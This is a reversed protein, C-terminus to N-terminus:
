PRVEDIRLGPDSAVAVIAARVADLLSRASMEPLLLSNYTLNCRIGGSARTVMAMDLQCGWPSAGTPFEASSDAVLQPTLLADRLRGPDDPPLTAIQAPVYNFLVDSFPTRARVPDETVAQVQIPVDMGFADVVGANVDAIVDRFRRSPSVDARVLRLDVLYGLLSRLEPRDRNADTMAVTIDDQGFCRSLAVMLTTLLGAALTAQESRCLAALRGVLAPPLDAVVRAPVCAAERERGVDPLDLHPEFGTLRPSQASSTRSREREWACFDAFQIPLDVLGDLATADADAAGHLVEVEKAFLANSSVDWITHPLVIAVHTLERGSRLLVAGVQPARRLDWPESLDDDLARRLGQPIDRDWDDVLQHERWRTLPRPAILQQVDEGSERLVTRLAEHRMVTRDVAAMLRGPDVGPALRWAMAITQWAFGDGFRFEREQVLRSVASTAGALGNDTLPPDVQTM